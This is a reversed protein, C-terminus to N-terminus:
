RRSQRDEQQGEDANGHGATKEGFEVYETGGQSGVQDPEGQDTNEVAGDSGVIVEADDYDHVHTFRTLIDGNRGNGQAQCDCKGHTNECCKIEPNQGVPDELISLM